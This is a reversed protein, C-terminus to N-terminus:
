SKSVFSKVSVQAIIRKKQTHMIFLLTIQIQIQHLYCFVIALAVVSFVRPRHRSFSKKFESNDSVCLFCLSLILCLENFTVASGKM